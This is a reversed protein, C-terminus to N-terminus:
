LLFFTYSSSQSGHIERSVEVSEMVSPCRLRTWGFDLSQLKNQEDLILLEREIIM